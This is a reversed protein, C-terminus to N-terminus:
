TAKRDHLQDLLEKVSHATHINKGNKFDERMKLYRKENKASLRVDPERVVLEIQNESLMSLHVRIYEQLSSFGKKTAALAASDRLQKDIPIQLITKSM